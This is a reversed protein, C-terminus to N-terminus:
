FRTGGNTDDHQARAAPATKTRKAFNALPKTDPKKVPDTLRTPPCQPQEDLDCENSPAPVHERALIKSSPALLRDRKPQLGVDSSSLQSARVVAPSFLPRKVQAVAISSIGVVGGIGAFVWEPVVPRSRPGRMGEGGGAWRQRRPSPVAYM